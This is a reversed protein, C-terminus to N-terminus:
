KVICYVQKTAQRNPRQNLLMGFRKLISLQWKYCFVLQVMRTAVDRNGIKCRKLALGLYPRLNQNRCTM